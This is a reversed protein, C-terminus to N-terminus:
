ENGAEQALGQYKEALFELSENYQDIINELHICVSLYNVPGTTGDHGHQESLLISGSLSQVTFLFDRIESIEQAISQYNKIHNTM